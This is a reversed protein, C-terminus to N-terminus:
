KYGFRPFKPIGNLKMNMYRSYTWKFEYNFNILWYRSGNNENVLFM